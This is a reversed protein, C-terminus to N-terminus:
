MTQRWFGCLLVLLCVILDFCALGRVQDLDASTLELNDGPDIPIYCSTDHNHEEPNYRHLAKYLYLTTMAVLEVAVSQQSFGFWMVCLIVDCSFAGLMESFAGLMEICDESLSWGIQDYVKNTTKMFYHNLLVCKEMERKADCILIFCYNFTEQFSQSLM